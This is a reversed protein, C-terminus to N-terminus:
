LQDRFDSCSSLHFKQRVVAIIATCLLFWSCVIGGSGSV